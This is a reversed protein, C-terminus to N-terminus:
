PKVKPQLKKMEKERALLCNLGKEINAHAVEIKFAALDPNFSYSINCPLRCFPCKPLAAEFQRRLQLSQQLPTM